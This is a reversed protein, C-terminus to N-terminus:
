KKAISLYKEWCESSSQWPSTGHKAYLKRAFVMNGRLTKLDLGLKLAEDEHYHKNIQMVGIDDQNVKGRIIEGNLGVHKFESECKAIEALVPVDKFYERVDSEVSIANRNSTTLATGDVIAPDDIPFAPPVGVYGTTKASATAPGYLISLLLMVSTILETM